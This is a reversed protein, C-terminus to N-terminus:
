PRRGMKRHALVGCAIVLAALFMASLDPLISVEHPHVHPVASTHAFATTAALSAFCILGLRKM